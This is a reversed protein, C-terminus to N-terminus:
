EIIRSVGYCAYGGTDEGTTGLYALESLPGSNTGYVGERRVGEIGGSKSMPLYAQITDSTVAAM